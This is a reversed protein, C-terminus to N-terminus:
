QVGAKKLAARAKEFEPAGNFDSQYMESERIFALAEALDPAAAILRANAKYDAASENRDLIVAVENGEGSNKLLAVIGRFFPNLGGHMNMPGVYAVWPGPTYTAQKTELNM